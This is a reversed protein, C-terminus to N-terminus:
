ASEGEECLVRLRGRPEERGTQWRWRPVDALLETEPGHRTLRVEIPLDFSVSTVRLSAGPGALSRVAGVVDTVTEWLARRM